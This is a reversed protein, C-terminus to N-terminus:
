SVFCLRAREGTRWVIRHWAQMKDRWFIHLHVSEYLRVVWLVICRQGVYSRPPPCNIRRRGTEARGCTVLDFGAVELEEFGM